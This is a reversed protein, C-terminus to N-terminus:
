KSFPRYISERTTRTSDQSPYSKKLTDNVESAAKTMISVNKTSKGATQNIMLNKSSLKTTTTKINNKAESSIQRVTKVPVGLEKAIKKDEINKDILYLVAYKIVNDEKM